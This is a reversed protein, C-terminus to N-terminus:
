TSLTFEFIKLVVENFILDDITCIVIGKTVSKQFFRIEGKRSTNTSSKSSLFSLGRGGCFQYVRYVKDGLEWRIILLSMTLFHLNQLLEWRLPFHEAHPFDHKFQLRFFCKLNQQGRFQFFTSSISCVSAAQSSDESISSKTFVILIWPGRLIFSIFVLVRNPCNSEGGASKWDRIFNISACLTVYNWESDVM